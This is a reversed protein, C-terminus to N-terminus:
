VEQDTHLWDNKLIYISELKESLKQLIRKWGEFNTLMGM